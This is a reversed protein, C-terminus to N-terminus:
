GGYRKRIGLKDIRSYLTKANIELREAAGGDGSVRGGSRELTDLILRREMSTVQADFEKLTVQASEEPDAHEHVRSPLVGSFDLVAGESLIVAQEICHSLERINGKWARDELKAMDTERISRFPKGFERSIKEAFHMALVPIDDRRERLPPLFLPFANLRFFLDERFRGSAVELELNRNTAAIVRVDVPIVQRGGIRELEKEQLVRLMKAQLELPLEGIEDLFITGGDAFEFKGIRRDTAGTFSGKEHGFLESEILASPLAACNVRVLVRDRRPSLNHIARAILEKGTGTEGQILVTADTPAVQSVRRLVAALPASSGIIEEFNHAARIEEVLYTREGELKRRLRDIEDFALCNQLALALQPVILRVTNQEAEGFAGDTGSIILGARSGPLDWLQAVIISTIGFRERVLAVLRFESSLQEFSEGSYVGPRSLLAVSERTIVDDSHVGLREMPSAPLFRGDPERMFNDFLRFGGDEGAVRIGLFTCPVLKSIQECVALMMRNRDKITLLANNVALQMATEAERQRLEEFALANSVAVAIPSSVSSLLEKELESWAKEERSVFNLFGILQGGSRLPSFVVQRMGLEHLTKLVSANTDDGGPLDRELSVTTVVRDELHAELWSGVLLRKQSRVREPLEFRLMEFFVSVYRLDKDITIIVASDFEFILRLKDTVTRFLEQPDRITGIADSIYQMLQRSESLSANNM